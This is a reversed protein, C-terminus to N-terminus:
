LFILTVFICFFVSPLSYINQVVIEAKTFFFIHMWATFLQSFLALLVTIITKIRRRQQEKMNCTHRDVQSSSCCYHQVHEYVFCNCRFLVLVAVKCTPHFHSHLLM